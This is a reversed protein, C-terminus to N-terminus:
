RKEEGAALAAKWCNCVDTPGTAAIEKVFDSFSVSVGNYPPIYSCDPAHPAAEIVKKLAELRKTMAENARVALCGAICATIIQEHAADPPLNLAKHIDAVERALYLCARSVFDVADARKFDSVIWCEFNTRLRQALEKAQEMDIEPTPKRRESASTRNPESM